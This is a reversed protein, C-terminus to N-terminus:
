RAFRKAQINHFKSRLSSRCRTSRELFIPATPTILHSGRKQFYDRVKKAQERGKQTLPSDKWGQCRKEVNFQTQGHRVIYIKKKM